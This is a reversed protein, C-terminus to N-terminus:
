GPMWGRILALVDSDLHVGRNGTLGYRRSAPIWEDHRHVHVGVLARRGSRFRIWVPSGSQGKYTDATYLVLGPRDASFRATGFHWWMTNAQAEKLWGKTPDCPAGDCKDGPYGFVSVPKGSVFGAPVPRLDTGQGATRSGWYGLSAGGLIQPRTASVDRDLTVLAFDFRSGQVPNTLYRSTTTYGVAPFRGLPQDAGNRGPVAYLSDPRNGHEDYVNHAATLVYRPGILLGSGRFFTSGRTIDLSCVWRAPAAVTNLVRVREDPQLVEYQQPLQDVAFPSRM